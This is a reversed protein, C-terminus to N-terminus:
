LHRLGSRGTYEHQYLRRDDCNGNLLCRCRFLGAAPLLRAPEDDPSERARHDPCRLPSRHRRALRKYHGLLTTHRLRGGALAAIVSSKITRVLVRARPKIEITHPIIKMTVTM